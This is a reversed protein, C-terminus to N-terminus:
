RRAFWSKRPSEDFEVTDQDPVTIPQPHEGVLKKQIASICDIEKMIIISLRDNEALTKDLNEEARIRSENMRAIRTERQDGLAVVQEKKLNTLIDLLENIEAKAQADANIIEIISKADM